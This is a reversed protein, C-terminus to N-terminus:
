TAAWGPLARPHVPRRAGSASFELRNVAHQDCPEDTQRFLQAMQLFNLHPDRPLLPTFPGRCIGVFITTMLTM